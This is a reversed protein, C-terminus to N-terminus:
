LYTVSEFIIQNLTAGFISNYKQYISFKQTGFIVTPTKLYDQFSISGNVQPLGIGITEKVKYDASLVDLKANVLANQHEYGYNICDQLTFNNTTKPTPPQQAFSSYTICSLLLAIFFKNMM